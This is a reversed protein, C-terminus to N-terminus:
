RGTKSPETWRPTRWGGPSLFFIFFSSFSLFVTDHTRCVHPTHVGYKSYPTSLSTFGEEEGIKGDYVSTPVGYPTNNFKKWSAEM